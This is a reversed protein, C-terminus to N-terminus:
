VPRWPKAFAQANRIPRAGVFRSLEAWTQAEISTPWGLSLAPLPTFIDIASLDVFGECFPGNSFLCISKLIKRFFQLDSAFTASIFLNDYGADQRLTKETQRSCRFAVFLEVHSVLRARAAQSDCAVLFSSLETYLTQHAPEVDTTWVLQDIQQLRSALAATNEFYELVPVDLSFDDEDCSTDTCDFHAFELHFDSALKALHIWHQRHGQFANWVRMFWGPRSINAIAAQRDVASNWERCWDDLPDECAEPDIHSSVKHIRVTASSQELHYAISQWLDTNEFDSPQHTGQQLERFHQVAVESDSWIHLVGDSTSGWRLASLIAVIEARLIDQQPGVLPGSSIVCNELPDVVAWAALATKERTPNECTGDTFCHRIETNPLSQFVGTMDPLALFAELLLSDWPNVGVLGHLRFVDPLMGWHRMFESHNARVHDYLSCERYKHYLTAPVGCCDCIASKSVDFKAKHQDTTFAGDRVIALLERDQPLFHPDHYTTIEQDFGGLDQYGPRCSVQAAQFNWYAQLVVRRVLKTSAQLLSIYGSPSFWLALHEDIRLQYRELLAWLKGFPGHSSKATQTAFVAWWHKIIDVSSCQQIFLQLVRWLQFWEPDLQETHLLSLRVIPSAGGRNWKMAKMAGTRLKVLHDFGLVVAEVGHLARPWLVQFINAQTVFGPHAAKRLKDFVPLVSQIRDTLVRNRLQNSYCVQGGLDREGYKVQHGLGKLANRGASVTSWTYLQCRDVQLDWLDCFRHLADLAALISDLDDALGELNDVYSLALSRPVEVLQWVHWVWNICAMAVCSLPCGEPFGTTSSLPRGTSRRVVFYRTFGELYSSWMRVFWSPIGAHLMFQFIPWRPLTNYAKILDAVYGYLPVNQQLSLEICINIFYWVDISRRKKTFGCQFPAAHQSIQALLQGARIGSYIRYWMSTVTIPRFGQVSTSDSKKQLCHILGTACQSPWPAGREILRYFDLAQKAHDDSLHLLDSRTWGCPGAAATEKFQHLARHWDHLTLPPLVFSSPQIHSCAFDLAPTWQSIPVDSHRDWYPMWLDALKAHISPTDPITVKCSLTQGPCLLLDSTVQYVYRGLDEPDDVACVHALEGQVTWRHVNSSPFPQPVVVLNSFTDLVGVSQDVTDELCDLTAKPPKRSVAFLARSSSAVKSRLSDKRKQFQWHEFRRYQHQFDDFLRVAVEGSPPYSPLETPSGQLPYPRSIWWASFGAAFGPAHLISNWLSCRSEFNETARVSCAAHKYSQLRRLQQYWRRVARNLFGCMQAEEGPRPAKPVLPCLRRRVPKTLQARGCFSKDKQIIPSQMSDGAAAEFDASWSAFASSMQHCSISGVDIVGGQQQKVRDVLSVLPPLQDWRHLDLHNWPIRGPLRWQHEFRPTSDLSLGVVLVDHDPFLPWIGINNLYPLLEPSAWIQDPSTSKKCTCRPTYGQTNRFWAQVEIWGQEEWLQMCDFSGAAANFDGCILRPGQRGFVLEETVGQLLLQAKM